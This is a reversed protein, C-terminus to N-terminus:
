QLLLFTNQKYHKDFSFFTRVKLKEAIEMNACDTLSVAKSSQGAFRKQISFTIQPTVYEVQVDSSLLLELFRLAQSHTTFYSLKTPVEDGVDWSTVLPEGSKELRSLLFVADGHHADHKVNLAIFADADVFIM